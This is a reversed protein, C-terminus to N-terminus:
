MIKEDCETELDNKEKKNDPVYEKATARVSSHMVKCGDNVGIEKLQNKLMNNHESLQAVITLTDFLSQHYHVLGDCM